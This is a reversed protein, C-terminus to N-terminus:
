NRKEPSAIPPLDADSRVEKVGGLQGGSVIFVIAVLAVLGGLMLGITGNAPGKPENDTM